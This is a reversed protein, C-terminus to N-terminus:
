FTLVALQVYYVMHEWRILPHLQLWQASRIVVAHFLSRVSVYGEEAGKASGFKYRFQLSSPKQQKKKKEKEFGRFM